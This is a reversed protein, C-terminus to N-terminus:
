GAASTLDAAASEQSRHGGTHRAAQREQRAIRREQRAGRTRDFLWIAIPALCVAEIVGTWVMMMLYPRHHMFAVMLIIIPVVAWMLSYRFTWLRDPSASDGKATVNFSLKRRFLVKILSRAYIPATLASVLMGSLGSSGMPEHPSVNHRRMFRYLLFQMAAVDVYYTLWWGANTRL